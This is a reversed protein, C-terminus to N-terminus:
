KTYILVFMRNVRVLSSEIFYRYENTTNENKSKTKHENSYISRKFEKSLLKSLKQNHKASLTVVLVYLKTDKITFIIFNPDVNDNHNEFNKRLRLKSEVKWNILPM